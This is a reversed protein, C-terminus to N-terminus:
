FPVKSRLAEIRRIRSSTPKASRPKGVKRPMDLRQQLRETIGGATAKLTLGYSRLIAEVDDISRAIHWDDGNGTLTDRVAKQSESIVGKDTKLEIWVTRQHFKFLLDPIGPKVGRSKKEAGEVASRTAHDIATFWVDPPLAHNLFKACAKQLMHEPAYRSM